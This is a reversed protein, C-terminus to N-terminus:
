FPVANEEGILEEESPLLQKFYKVGNQKIPNGESDKFFDNEFIEVTAKCHRGEMQGIKFSLDEVTDANFRQRLEDLDNIGTASSAFAMLQNIGTENSAGDKGIIWYCSNAAGFCEEHRYTGDDDKVVKYKASLNVKVAESQSEEKSSKIYDAGSIKFIYLGEPLLGSTQQDLSAQTINDLLAM